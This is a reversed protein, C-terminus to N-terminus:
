ESDPTPPIAGPDAGPSPTALPTGGAPSPEAEPAPTMAPVTIGYRAADAALADYMRRVAETPAMGDVLVNRYATDGLAFVTPLWPQDLLLQASQLQEAMRMVNPYVDILVAGNAPLVLHRLLLETQGEVSMAYNMFRASLAAQRETVSQSLLLGDIWVFPRGPGAPGEPLMAVNLDATSFRLLLENSQEAPALLYASTGDAFAGGMEERTGATRIGFSQQSEQLWTLWDIMAQPALAFQGNDGYLRGGFAGLGWFAWEFTGDVMVPVGAQAQARLDALTGAADRALAANYFLTQPDVLIPAGYLTGDVRMADVAIPRMQQLLAEARLQQVLASDLLDRLPRIADAAVAQRLLMHRYFIMDTDPFEGGGQFLADMEALPIREVTVKIGPCVDSFGDALTLLVPAYNGVDPTLITVEGSETCLPTDATSPFGYENVLLAQATAAAETASLAGAMTQSYATALVDLIAKLEDNNYWPIATRAQAEVTAVEPYLGESIRTRSNAPVVNAERMLAAQQDSSTLFLALDLSRDIQNPSSMANLLLATTSLLPGASGASGAPLQAVGLQSGLSANLANLERSHGIYYPIDGELFRAQLAQADDDTIFGPTDRVQEMWTLWNAIGATADQPNGEADFLNVGFARASWLADNFQSNMLVRQGGSAEQLLQDVTVPVREVLSRNYYLVLTDLEMPLGYIDGTYRMTQLAVTLYRQLQEETVRTTLPLLAGANALAPINTSSTLLLNPGLGSRTAREFEAEMNGGQAEVIVDVGPNARRYRDLANNLAAAEMEPLNHWLLIGDRIQVEVGDATDTTTCATLLASISFLVLLLLIWRRGSRTAVSRRVADFRHFHVLM